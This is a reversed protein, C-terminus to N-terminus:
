ALTAGQPAVDAAGESASVTTDHREYTGIIMGSAIARVQLVDV